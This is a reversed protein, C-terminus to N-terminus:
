ETVLRTEIQNVEDEHQENLREITMKLEEIEETCNRTREKLRKIEDQQAGNQGDLLSKHESVLRLFDDKLKGKLGSEGNAFVQRLEEVTQQLKQKERAFNTEM